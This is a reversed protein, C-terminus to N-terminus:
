GVRFHIVQGFPAVFSPNDYIVWIVPRNPNTLQTNFWGDTIVVLAKSNSQSFAELVPVLDTGGYGILKVEKLEQLSSIEKHFTVQHHFQILDLVNPNMQKFVSQAESVFENFLEDSISGSTDIAFTIKTLSPNSLSHLYMGSHLYRRNPKNWTYDSKNLDLLYKRLLQKWNIKPQRLEGLLRTVEYPISESHGSMRASQEAQIIKSVIDENTIDTNQIIDGDLSNPESIDDPLLAYVEDASMGEYQRDLLGGAIMTFGNNVLALNIVYDTAYNWKTHNRNDLRGMHLYAVHLTEHALLFMREENTLEMFKDPNIYLHKGDTAGYSVTDTLVTQLSCCLNAMFTMDKLAFMKLKILSILEKIDNM